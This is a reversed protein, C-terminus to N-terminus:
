LKGQRQSKPSCHTILNGQNYRQSKIYTSFRDFWARPSQKLGYLSKLLKCVRNNFQAEFRPPPNMYVEGKLDENLFANKVDLQYLSWDKNAAASLLVRITNLKAVFSFAKHKDITGDAKYKLTFM